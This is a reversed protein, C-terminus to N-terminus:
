RKQYKLKAWSSSSRYKERKSKGVLLQRFRKSNHVQCFANSEEEKAADLINRLPLRAYCFQVDYNVYVHQNNPSCLRISVSEVVLFKRNSKTSIYNYSKHSKRELSCTGDELVAITVERIYNYM